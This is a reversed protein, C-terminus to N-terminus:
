PRGPPATERLTVPLDVEVATGQGPRSTVAIGGGLAAVRDALGTLGSGAGISAGGIGDDRVCLHLRGGATRAAVHTASARAHKAANALAESVVYYAAVEVQEPLRCGLDVTLEVPVASRRALARLASPLGGESLVAPHIGRSTERLEDLTAALGEVVRDLRARLRPVDDPATAAARLDLMLSVLRQQTGDHLDREIRRRERDAAAVIRARSAALQERNEGLAGAMTNLSHALAGVEDAGREPVRAGLDGGALRGAMTTARRVPRVVTRSLYGTFLVILAVSGILGGVGALMVRRGATDSDRRAAAAHGRETATLAALDARAASRDGMARISEARARQEPQDAVLRELAAARQAFAAADGTIVTRELAGAAVQV